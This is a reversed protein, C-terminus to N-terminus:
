RFTCNRIEINETGDIRLPRPCHHFNVNEIKLSTVGSFYWTYNTQVSFACEVYVNQDLSGLIELSKLEPTFLIQSSIVHVGAALEIINCNNSSNSTPPQKLTDLTSQLNQFGDVRVIRCLQSPVSPVVFFFVFATVLMCRRCM